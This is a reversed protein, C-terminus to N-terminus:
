LDSGRASSSFCVKSSCVFRSGSFRLHRSSTTVRLTVVSEGQGILLLGRAFYLSRERSSLLRLIGSQCSTRALVAAGTKKAGSTRCHSGLSGVFIKLNTSPPKVEYLLGANKSHRM